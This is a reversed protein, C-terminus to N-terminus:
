IDSPGLARVYLTAAISLGFYPERCAEAALEFLLAHKRFPIRQDPDSVQRRSLGAQRLWGDPESQKAELLDAVLCAWRADITPEAAMAQGWERRWPSRVTTM